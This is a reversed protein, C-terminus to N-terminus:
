ERALPLSSWANASSARFRLAGAPPEGLILQWLRAGSGPARTEFELSLPTRTGAVAASSAGPFGEVSVLLGHGGRSM